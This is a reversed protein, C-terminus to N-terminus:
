ECHTVCKIYDAGCAIVKMFDRGAESMCQQMPPICVKYCKMGHTAVCLGFQAWCQFKEFKSTAAGICTKQIEICEHAFDNDDITLQDVPSALVASICFLAVLFVKMIIIILHSNWVVFSSRQSCCLLSSIPGM